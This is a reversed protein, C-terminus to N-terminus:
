LIMSFSFVRSSFEFKVFLTKLVEANLKHIESSCPVAMFAFGAHMFNKPAVSSSTIPLYLRKLSTLKGIWSPIERIYGHHIGLFELKVLGSISEPLPALHMYNLILRKLNPLKDFKDPIEGAVGQDILM